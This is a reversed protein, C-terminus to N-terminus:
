VCVGMEGGRVQLYCGDLRCNKGVTVGRGIVCHSIACGDGVVSGAGIATAPGLM